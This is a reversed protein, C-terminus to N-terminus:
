KNEEIEFKGLAKKIAPLVFESLNINSEQLERLTFWNMTHNAEIPRSSDASGSHYNINYTIGDEENVKTFNILEEKMEIDMKTFQEFRDQTEGVPDGESLLITPLAWEGSETLNLAIKTDLLDTEPSHDYIVMGEYIREKEQSNESSNDRSEDPLEAINKEGEQDPLLTDDGGKNKDARLEHQIETIRTSTKEREIAIAEPTLDLINNQSESGSPSLAKERVDEGSHMVEPKSNIPESRFKIERKQSREMMQM